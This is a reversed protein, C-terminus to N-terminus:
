VSSPKEIIAGEQTFFILLTIWIYPFLASTKHRNSLWKILLRFSLYPTTTFSLSRHWSFSKIIAYASFLSLIYRSLYTWLQVDCAVRYLSWSISVETACGYKLWTQRQRDLGDSCRSLQDCWHCVFPTWNTANLCSACSNQIICAAHLVASAYLVHMRIAYM